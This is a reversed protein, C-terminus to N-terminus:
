CQDDIGDCGDGEDDPDGVAVRDYEADDIGGCCDGKDDPNGM